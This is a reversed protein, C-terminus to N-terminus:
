IPGFHTCLERWIQCRKRGLSQMRSVEISRRVVFACRETCLRGLGACFRASPLQYVPLRSGKSRRATFLAVHKERVAESPDVLIIDELYPSLDTALLTRVLGDADPMSYGTIILRRMRGVEHWAARWISRFPEEEVPKNTLPPAMVGPAVERYPDRRLRLPLTSSRWNLSGHLKLM